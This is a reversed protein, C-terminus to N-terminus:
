PAPSGSAAADPSEQEVPVPGSPMPGAPSAGNTMAIIADLRALRETLDARWPANTDGPRDLLGQWMARAEEFQGSQALALGKFFPPGLHEPAIAAANDFAYLAAPTIIGNAHGVLANGLAVWVDPDDPNEHIAGRLMGAAAGFQGARVFADATILYSQGRGYQDGMAKRAEILAAQGSEANERPVTPSGRMQPHGQLAYGALGLMLAAGAFERGGRPLKLVFAMGAFTIAALALVIIWGM